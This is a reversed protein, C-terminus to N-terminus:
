ASRRITSLEYHNNTKNLPLKIRNNSLNNSSFTQIKLGDTFNSKLFMIKKRNETLIYVYYGWFSAIM